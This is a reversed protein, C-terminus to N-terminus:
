PGGSDWAKLFQAAAAAVAPLPSKRKFCALMESSKASFFEPNRYLQRIGDILSSREFFFVCDRFADASEDGVEESIIPVENTLPYFCRIPEFAFASDDKHLNLVAWSRLMQADRLNEYQGFLVRVPVGGAHLADLIAKRRPTVVGYFLLSLGRKRRMDSRLLERRYLFPIVCKNGHPIKSLNRFSYDWVFHGNLVDRYVGTDFQWDTDQLQESNFMITDPPMEALDGRLLLHPCFVINHAHKLIRNTSRTTAYGCAQLAVALYDAAEKLALSHVYNPPQILTVNFPKSAAVSM